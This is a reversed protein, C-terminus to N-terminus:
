EEKEEYRDLEREYFRIAEQVLQAAEDALEEGEDDVDDFFVVEDTDLDLVFRPFETHLVFVKEPLDTNDGMLFKPLMLYVKNM